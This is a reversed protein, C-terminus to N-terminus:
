KKILLEDAAKSLACIKRVGVDDHLVFLAFFFHQSGVGLYSVIFELGVSCIIDDGFGMGREHLESLGPSNRRTFAGFRQHSLRKCAFLNVILVDQLSEENLPM